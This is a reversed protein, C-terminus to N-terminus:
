TATPRLTQTKTSQNEHVLRMTQHGERSDKQNRGLRLADPHTKPNEHHRPPRTPSTRTYGTSTKRQITRTGMVQRQLHADQSRKWYSRSPQMRHHRESNKRDM